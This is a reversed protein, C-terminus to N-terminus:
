VVGGWTFIKGNGSKAITHSNGCSVEIIREKAQYFYPVLQPSKRPQDDGMGLQGEAANKGHAYVSGSKGVMVSFGDGLGVSVIQERVNIKKPVINGNDDKFPYIFPENLQNVIVTHSGQSIISSVKNNGPLNIPGYEESTVMILRDENDVFFSDSGASVKKAQVPLITKVGWSFCVLNGKATISLTDKGVALVLPPDSKKFRRENFESWNTLWQNQNRKFSDVSDFDIIKTYVAIKEILQASISKENFLKYEISPCSFVNDLYIPVEKTDAEQQDLYAQYEQQIKSKQAQSLINKAAAKKIKNFYYDKPLKDPQDEFNHMRYSYEVEEDLHELLIDKEQGERDDNQEEDKEQLNFELSFERESAKEEKMQVTEPTRGVVESYDRIAKNSQLETKRRNKEPSNREKESENESKVVKITIIKDNSINKKANTFIRDVFKDSTASREAKKVKAKSFLRDVFQLADRNKEVSLTRALEFNQEAKEFVEDVFKAIKEEHLKDFRRGPSNPQSALKNNTMRELNRESLLREAFEREQEKSFSLQITSNRKSWDEKEKKEIFSDREVRVEDSIPAAPTIDANVKKINLPQSELISNRAIKDKAKNFISTVIKTSKGENREQSCSALRNKAKTFINSVFKDSRNVSFDKKKSLQRENSKSDTRAKAKVYLSNVFNDVNVRPASVGVQRQKVKKFLSNVYNDTAEKQSMISNTRSKEKAKNFINQVYDNIPDKEPIDQNDDCSQSVPDHESKETITRLYELAHEFTLLEGQPGLDSSEFASNRNDAKYNEDKFNNSENSM